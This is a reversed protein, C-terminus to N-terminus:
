RLRTEAVMSWSLDVDRAVFFDGSERTGEGFLEELEDVAVSFALPLVWSLMKDPRADM